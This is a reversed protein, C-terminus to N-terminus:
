VMYDDKGGYHHSIEYKLCKKHPFRIIFANRNLGM